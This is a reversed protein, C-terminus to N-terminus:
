PRRSSRTLLVASAMAALQIVFIGVVLGDLGPSDLPVYLVTILVALAVSGFFAGLIMGRAGLGAAWAALLSALLEVVTVIALSTLVDLHAQPRLYFVTAFAMVVSVLGVKALWTKANM